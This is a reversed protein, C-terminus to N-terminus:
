QTPQSPSSTVKAPSRKAPSSTALRVTAVVSHGASRLKSAPSRHPAVTRTESPLALEHAQEDSANGERGETSKAVSRQSPSSTVKAPSRKAPSSTALRVTAVVSHGASRLKSAPSRGRPLVLTPEDCASADAGDTSKGGDFGNEGGTHETPAADGSLMEQASQPAIQAWVGIREAEAGNDDSDGASSAGASRSLLPPIALLPSAAPESSHAHAEANHVLREAREIAGSVTRRLPDPSCRLWV